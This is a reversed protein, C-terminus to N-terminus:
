KSFYFDTREINSIVPIQPKFNDKELIRTQINWNFTREFNDQPNILPNEWRSQELDKYLWAPHTARSEEIFPNVNNYKIASTEVPNRMYDTELLDHNLKRNMCFLENEINVTNTCLNAGWRQLRLQPDEQFPMDIGNGPVNLNYRESFTIHELERKIRSPDDRIRTFSM